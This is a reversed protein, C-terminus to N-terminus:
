NIREYKKIANKVKQEQGKIRPDNFSLPHYMEPFYYMGCYYIAGNKTLDSSIIIKYKMKGPPKIDIIKIIDISSKPFEPDHQSIFIKDKYKKIIDQAKERNVPKLVDELSEKVIAKM